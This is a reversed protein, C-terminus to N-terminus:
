SVSIKGQCSGNIHYFDSGGFKCHTLITDGDRIRKTFRDGWYPLGCEPAIIFEDALENISTKADDVTEGKYRM